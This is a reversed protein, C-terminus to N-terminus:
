ASRFKGMADEPKTQAMRLIGNKDAQELLLSWTDILVEKIQFILNPKYNVIEGNNNRTFAQPINISLWKIKAGVTEDKGIPRMWGQLLRLTEYMKTIKTPEDVQDTLWYLQFNGFAQNVNYLWLSNMNFQNGDSYDFTDLKNNHYSM